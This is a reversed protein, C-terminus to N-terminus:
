GMWALAYGKEQARNVAVIGAPVYHANAISNAKVDEYVDNAPLKLASAILGAYARSAMDCVAFHVGRRIMADLTVGRNPLQMGYGSAQYVNVTPAEKTKPDKFQIREAIPAGYKAWMADNWAFPTSWHRLCIVVAHDTDSLNYGSRNANFYNSAFTIADGAGTATSSDFFFRHKGPLADLWEDQPHREPTWARPEQAGADDPTAAMAAGFAGLATSFRTLFSRRDTM